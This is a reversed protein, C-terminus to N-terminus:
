RVGQLPISYWSRPGLLEQQGGSSGVSFGAGTTGTAPDYTTAPPPANAAGRQGLGPRDGPCHTGLNPERPETRTPSRRDTGTACVPGQTAVLDFDATGGHVISGLKAFSGPFVTLGHELAPTRVSVIQSTTALNGLLATLSPEGTRLLGAVQRTAGPATDLLRGIQPANGRASGTLSRLNAALERLRDGQEGNPGALERAGGMLRELQPRRDRLTSLLAATNDLLRTLEPGSGNFGTELADGLAAVERPDITSSLADFDGLLKELPLPRATRSAEIVSGERLYPGGSTVPQLDLHQLAMPTDMSVVARASAPVRTGSDVALVVNVGERPDIRVDAVRGVEVGRYTVTSEPSIGGSDPMHVTIQDSGRLLAPGLVTTAVYWTCGISILAFLAFQALMLRNRIM